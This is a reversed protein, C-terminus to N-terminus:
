FGTPTQMLNEQIEADSMEITRPSLTFIICFLLMIAIVLEVM